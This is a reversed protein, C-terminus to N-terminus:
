KRWSYINKTSIWKGNKFQFLTAGGNGCNAGCQFATYVIATNGDRSFLPKGAEFYGQNHTKFYAKWAKTAKKASLASSPLSASTLVIAGAISDKTWVRHENNNLQQKMYSVDDATIFKGRVMDNFFSSDSDADGSFYCLVSDRLMFTDPATANLLATKLLLSRNQGVATLAILAFFVILRTKM